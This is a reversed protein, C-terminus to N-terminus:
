RRVSEHVDVSTIVIRDAGRRTESQGRGMAKIVGRIEIEGGFHITAAAGAEDIQISAGPLRGVASAQVAALDLLRRAVLRGTDPGWRETLRQESNCLAALDASAFTVNM